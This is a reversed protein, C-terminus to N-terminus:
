HIPARAPVNVWAGGAIQAQATIAKPAKAAALGFFFSTDGKGPSSGACVPASFTFTITTGVQAASALGVTGLGGSTVVFVQDPQGDKDYDLSAVPGFDVKLASVCPINLVGVAQTLNVRYEYGTKGAAPAGAAGAYTRSQLRATGSIGPVPINGGTDKVTIKCTTNFVCNVAPAGVNVVKLPAAHAACTALGALAAAAASWKTTTLTLM